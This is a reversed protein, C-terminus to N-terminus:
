SDLELTMHAEILFRDAKEKLKNLAEADLEVTSQISLTFTGYSRSMSKSNLPLTKFVELEESALDIRECVKLLLSESLFRKKMQFESFTSPAIELRKALMRASYLSNEKKKKILLHSLKERLFQQKDM